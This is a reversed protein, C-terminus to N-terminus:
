RRSAPCSARTPAGARSRTCSTSWSPFSRSARWSSAGSSSRSIPTSGSRRWCRAARRAPSASSASAASARPRRRRSSRACTAATSPTTTAPSCRSCTTASRRRRRLRAGAGRRRPRRALAHRSPPARGGAARPGADARQRDPQRRADSPRARLRPRRLERVAPARTANHLTWLKGFTGVTDSFTGHVFCWCRGATPRRRCRTSSAAAARSRSSRTPRRARLRRRRGQRRGEEDAGRRRAQRGPGQRHRDAVQFGSLVAQGMWGRTSGRTAEAELGPWGLQAPVAVEGAGRRAHGGAALASRTTAASQALMLDRADAPHLVLTPGNAISLVVVDEGPRATVRVPEGGGRQTGVRVSAKVAGRTASRAAPAAQAQGPVIFTIDSTGSAM